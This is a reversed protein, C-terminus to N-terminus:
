RTSRALEILEDLERRMTVADPDTKRWNWRAIFQRCCVELTDLDVAPSCECPMADCGSCVLFSDILGGKRM